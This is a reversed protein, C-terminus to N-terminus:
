ISVEKILLSSTNLISANASAVPNGNNSIPSGPTFEFYIKYLRTFTTNKYHLDDLIYM